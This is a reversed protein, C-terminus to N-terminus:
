KTMWKKPTYLESYFESFNSETICGILTDGYDPCNSIKFPLLKKLRTVEMSWIQSALHDAPLPIEKAFVNLHDAPSSRLHTPLKYQRKYDAPLLSAKIRNIVKIQVILTTM